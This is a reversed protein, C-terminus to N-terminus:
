VMKLVPNRLRSCQSSFGGTHSLGRTIFELDTKKKSNLERSSMSSHGHRGSNSTPCCYSYCYYLSGQGNVLEHPRFNMLDSCLATLVEGVEMWGCNHPQPHKQFLCWSLLATTQWRAPIPRVKIPSCNNFVFAVHDVARHARRM